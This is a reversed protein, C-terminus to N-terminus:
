SRRWSISRVHCLEDWEELSGPLDQCSGQSCLGDFYPYPPLGAIFGPVRGDVEGGACGGNLAAPNGGVGGEDRCVDLVELAVDKASGECFIGVGVGGEISPARRM